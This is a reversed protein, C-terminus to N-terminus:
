EVHLVGEPHFAHFAFAFDVSYVADAWGDATRREVVVNGVDVGEAIAAADLASAQGPEWTFRLDGVEFPAKQRVVDLSWAEDGVRVVRALPAIDDPLMGHYLFPAPASDYGAYPNAGYARAAGGAVLVRGDPARERFNAFSELRAPLMALQTGTLEGVIAEGLFQQWWSETTRDYMVLDSHRLKGTTGFELVRDGIRRDFVLGTNCLPCYTVAVPVGGVVDNVIEHWILIRLPYARADGDVILGIVPEQPPLEAETVPVFKPDDIAPIGDKPPGGSIIEDLPVAHKAFDTDPWELRWQAPAAASQTAWVSWIVLALVAKRM